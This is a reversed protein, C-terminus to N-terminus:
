PKLAAQCGASLDDKPRRALCAALKAFDDAPVGECYSSVEGRCAAKLKAAKGLSQEVLARCLDGLAAKNSALCALTADPTAPVTACFQFLEDECAQLKLENAAFLRDLTGRCAPSLNGWRARLCALIRGNGAEVGKCMSRLEEACPVQATAAGPAGLLLSAVAALFSGRISTSM